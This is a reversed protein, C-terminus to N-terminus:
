NTIIEISGRRLKIVADALAKLEPTHTVCFEQDFRGLRLVERKMNFFEKRLDMDLASDKEDTVITKLDKGSANKNYISIAKSVADDVLARQGGSTVRFPKWENASSDFVMIELTEKVGKGDSKMGQTEIKVSYRGDSSIKLLSNTLASIQPGGDDIELGIIGENGLGRELLTWQSVEDNLYEIRQNTTIMSAKATEIQRLSEEIAGIRKSLEVQEIHKTEIAENTERLVTQLQEKQQQIEPDVEILSGRDELAQVDAEIEGMEFDLMALANDKEEKAQKLETKIEPLKQEELELWPLAELSKIIQSLLKEYRDLDSRINRQSNEIDALNKRLSPLDRLGTKKDEIEVKLAAIRPDEIQADAYKKELEPISEKALVADKVFRCRAATAESCPVTGLKAAQKKAEDLLLKCLEAEHKRRQVIGQLEKEKEKIQGDIVLLNNISQNTARQRDDFVKASAKVDEIRKETDSKEVQMNRLRPIDKINAETLRVKSELGIIRSSLNSEKTSRATRTESLKTRKLALDREIEAKGGIAAEQTAIKVDCDNIQAQIDTTGNTLRGIEYDNSAQDVIIQGSQKKYDDETGIQAKLRSREIQLAEVKGSLHQKLKRAKEGKAKIHDIGLLEALIEKMDGKTYDSLQKANQAKFQATFFLEPSGFIAEVVRDYAELKGDIGPCPHWREDEGMSYLFAEQKRRESDISLISRYTVGDMKCWYEKQANGYVHDYFSFATPRYSSGANFPMVRYPHLNDVITTKGTGTPADFVIIGNPLEDAHLEIEELGMGARIGKFGQLRLYLHRM